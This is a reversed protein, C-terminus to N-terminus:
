HDIIIQAWVKEKISRWLTYVAGIVVILNSVSNVRILDEILFVLAFIVLISLVTEILAWWNIKSM